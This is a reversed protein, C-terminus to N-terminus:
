ETAENESRDLGDHGCGIQGCESCYDARDIPTLDEPDVHYVHDDGIMIVSVQGTRVEYGSWETDEDPVTQWGCVRFAIGRYGSVSYADGPFAVRDPEYHSRRRM